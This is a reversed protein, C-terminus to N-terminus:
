AVRRFDYGAFHKWGGDPQQATIELTWSDSEPFYEFRDKFASQPYPVIFEIVNGAMSGTGHPIFYAAGFNDMWHAIVQQSEGDFGIFIRAEYHSPVQVDNMSIETFQGQLAPAAVVDYQVPEGTVDGTATWRGDPKQMLPPHNEPNTTM